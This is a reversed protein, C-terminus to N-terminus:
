DSIPAWNPCAITEVGHKKLEYRKAEAEESTFVAATKGDTTM